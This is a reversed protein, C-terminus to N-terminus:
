CSGSYACLFPTKNSFEHGNRVIRASAYFNRAIGKGVNRRVVRRPGSMVRLIAEVRAEDGSLCCDKFEISIAFLPSIAKYARQPKLILFLM